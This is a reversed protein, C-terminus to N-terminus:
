LHTQQYSEHVSVRGQLVAPHRGPPLAPAAPRPTCSLGAPFWYKALVTSKKLYHKTM